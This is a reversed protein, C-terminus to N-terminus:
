SRAQEYAIRGMSILWYRFYLFGDDSMYHQNLVCGAGYVGGIHAKDVLMNFHIYFDVIRERPLNGLHNELEEARYRQYQAMRNAKAVIHWFDQDNM